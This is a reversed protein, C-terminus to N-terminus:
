GNQIGFLGGTGAAKRTPIGPENPFGIVGNISCQSLDIAAICVFPNRSANPIGLNSKSSSAGV